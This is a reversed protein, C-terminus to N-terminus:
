SVYNEAVQLKLTLKYNTVRLNLQFLEYSVREIYSAVELEYSTFHLEHKRRFM